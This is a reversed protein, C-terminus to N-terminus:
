IFTTDKCGGISTLGSSNDLGSPPIPLRAPRLCWHLLGDRNSGPDPYWSVGFARFHQLNVAQLMKKNDAHEFHTFHHTIQSLHRLIFM